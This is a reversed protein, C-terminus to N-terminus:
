TRDVIGPTESPTLPRNRRLKILRRLQSNFADLGLLTELSASMRYTWNLPSTAGPVNIREDAPTL